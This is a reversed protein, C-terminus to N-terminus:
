PSGKKAINGYLKSRSTLLDKEMKNLQEYTKGGLSKIHDVLRDTHILDRLYLSQELLYYYDQKKITIEENRDFDLWAGYNEIEEPVSYNYDTTLADALKTEAFDLCTAYREFGNEGVERKIAEETEFAYSDGIFNINAGKRVLYDFLQRSTRYVALSLFTPAWHDVIFDLSVKSDIIEDLIGLMVPPLYPREDLSNVGAIILDTNSLMAEAFGFFWKVTM